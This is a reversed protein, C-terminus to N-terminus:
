VVSMGLTVEVMDCSTASWECPTHIVGVSYLVGVDSKRTFGFRDM